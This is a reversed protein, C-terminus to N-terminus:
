CRWLMLFIRFSTHWIIHFIAISCVWNQFKGSNVRIHKSTTLQNKQMKNQEATLYGKHQWTSSTLCHKQSYFNVLSCTLLIIKTTELHTFSSQLIWAMKLKLTHDIIMWHMHSLWTPLDSIILWISCRQLHWWTRYWVLLIESHMYTQYINEQEWYSTPM